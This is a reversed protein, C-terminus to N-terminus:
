EQWWSCWRPIAVHEQVLLLVMKVQEDIRTTTAAMLTEVKVMKVMKVQEDIRTTTAARLLSMQRRLEERDGLTRKSECSVGVTDSCRAILM